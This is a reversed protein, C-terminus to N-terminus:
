TGSIKDLESRIANLASSSVGGNLIHGFCAKLVNITARMWYGSGDGNDLRVDGVIIDSQRYNIGYPKLVINGSYSSNPAYTEMKWGHASVGTPSDASYTHTFYITDSIARLADAHENTAPEVGKITEIVLGSFGGKDWKGDDLTTERRDGGLITRSLIRSTGNVTVSTNSFKLGMTSAGDQVRFVGTNNNNYFLKGTNLEFNTSGNTSQLTGGKIVNATIGNAVIKDSSISNAAIKTGTIAGDVIMNGKVKIKDAFLDIANQNVAFYSGIANAVDTTSKGAKMVIGDANITLSSSKVTSKDLSSVSAKISDTTQKFESQATVLKSDYDEPAPSWDTYANGRELKYGGFFLYNDSNYREIRPAMWGDKTIKIKIAIRKYKDTLGINVNDQRNDSGFSVLGSAMPQKSEHPLYFNVADTKASSKVYASFVYEEGAKVEFYHSRGGWIDQKKFIKVGKYDEAYVGAGGIWNSGSFDRSGKFLNVSGIETPIKGEVSSIKSSLENAKAIINNEATTVRGSLTNFDSQSVKAQLGTNLASIQTTHTSITQANSNATVQANDAKSTVTSIGSQLETKANNLETKTALLTMGDATQQIQSSLNSIQSVTDEPAPQWDSKLSGVRISLNSITVTGNATTQNLYLYRSSVAKGNYPVKTFTGSYHGSGSSSSVDTYVGDAVITDNWQEATGDSYTIVRNIRFKSTSTPATVSWDFEIILTADDAIGDCASSLDYLRGGGGTSSKSDGTKLAYNRGGVTTPIKGEVASVASTIQGPVAEVKTQLNSVNGDTTQLSSKLSAVVKDNNAQYNALNTKTTNATTTTASLDNRIGTVDSTYTSKAVYDKAIATREATLQKATETKASEFYANARESEGDKYTELSEIRTKFGQATQEATTKNSQVQGDLTQVTSSLSAYNQDANQKYEAIKQEVDADPTQYDVPVNSKAVMVEKIEITVPETNNVIGFKSKNETIPVNAKATYSFWVRTWVNAPISKNSPYHARKSTDDNDNSTTDSLANNVDYKFSCAKNSKIMLGFFLTEGGNLLINLDSTNFTIGNGFTSSSAPATMTWSKTTNSYSFNSCGRNVVRSAPLYNKNGVSLSNFRASLGDLGSELTATKQSASNATTQVQTLTTKTNALDNEVTKTRNTVSTIDKGNQSVTKSLESVTTKTGDATTEVNTVRKTLEAQANAQEQLQQAQSTLDQKTQSLDSQLNAAKTDVASVANQLDTKAKSLDDAVTTLEQKAEEVAALSDDRVTELKELLEQKTKDIAATADADKAIYSIQYSTTSDGNTYIIVTRTWLYMGKVLTPVSSSWTAPETTDSMSLGYTVVTNAIGNGTDGKDGKPGEDGQPGQPGEDGQPGQPGEDGQPGQPGQAGDEVDTFTIPKTAVLENNVYAEITLNFVHEFDTAKVLLTKGKGVISGGNKFLFEGDQAIGSKLLEVTLESEGENNKFSTGNSAAVRIEYPISADILQQLRSTLADPVASKLKVYNSLETKNNEPQTHSIEQSIVRAKITLKPEFDDDEILYTDGISAEFFGDVEYDLTPYCNKKLDELSKEILEDVTDVEYEFDRRIWKDENDKSSFAVPFNEASQPARIASGSIYFEINGNEDYWKNNYSDPIYFEETEEKTEVETPLDVNVYKDVSDVKVVANGGDVRGGKALEPPQVLTQISPIIASLSYKDKTVYQKGAYNQQLVTVTDGNVSEVVVTHGYYGTYWPAGYNPKINLITGAVINKNSFGSGEVGWGFNGWSYDTGIDCARIGSGVLGSFSGLGCGLGAGNLKYSFWAAVAYCQGNGVTKGVLSSLENLAKKTNPAGPQEVTTSTVVKPNKWDNDYTDLVNENKANIGNRIGTMLSNYHDYGAAAYDYAAGGVRFLGRTYDSINTKNAVNYIGQKALLYFYDKFFDSMNAFHMYHGGESSPRASGQSVVVGSPRNPNGTWTMGSWNNDVRAVNSNGWFSELYLQSIVGSPLVRYEYCLKLITQINEISLTGNANIMNSRVIVENSNVTPKKEKELPIVQTVRTVKRIGKPVTMNFIELIDQKEKLSKINEGKRLIKDKVFRGVGGTGNSDRKKYIDVRFEKVKGNPQLKTTFKHEAGFAQFLALLRSLKTEEDSFSVAKKVNSLENLGIVMNTANLLEMKSIHKKLTLEDEGSDYARVMENRLELNLNECYCYTETGTKEVSMIKFVHDEGDYTFSVYNGINLCNFPNTYVTEYSLKRNYATFEYVSSGTELDRTWKDESYGIADQSENDLIGIIKLDKDHINLLM